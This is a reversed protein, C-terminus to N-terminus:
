QLEIQRLDQLWSLLQTLDQWSDAKEQVKWMASMQQPWWAPLAEKRQSLRHSNLKSPVPKNRGEWDKPQVQGTDLSAVKQDPGPPNQQLQSLLHKKPSLMRCYLSDNTHPGRLTNRKEAYLILSQSKNIQIMFDSQVRNTHAWLIAKLVRRFCQHMTKDATNKFTDVLISM